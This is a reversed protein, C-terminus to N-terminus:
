QKFSIRDFLERGRDSKKIFSLLMKVNSKRRVITSKKLFSVEEDYKVCDSKNAKYLLKKVLKNRLILRCLLEEQENDSLLNYMYGLCSLFFVHSNEQLLGLNCATKSHNEGYKRYALDSRKIGDDELMMGIDLIKFGKDGNKRIANCINCTCDNINSFQLVDDSSIFKVDYNNLIYDIYEDMNINIISDIYKKVKETEFEYKYFMMKENIEKEFTGDFFLKVIDKYSM